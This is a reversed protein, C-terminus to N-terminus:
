RTAAARGQLWPQLSVRWIHDAGNNWAAGGGPASAPLRRDSYFYLTRHDPGLQAGMSHTGGNVADGLDLPPSWGASTRFAIALRYSRQAPSELSFVIFSRDPAVAPDRIQAGADGIAVVSPPAYRGNRYAARLLRFDGDPVACGIFYLSGDAAISPAFTTSSTNVTDPLRVPTGWRDGHRDVRWLNMGHGTSRRGAHVADLPRGGPTAPRNSVFVLYSGDPAMAPDLDRWRGSFPAPQPTSWRGHRRRSEMLTFGDASGRMFIVTDGDPTFAAAGDDAKSAVVGPAFLTPPPPPATAGAIATAATGALFFFAPCRM